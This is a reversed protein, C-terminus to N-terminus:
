GPILDYSANLIANVDDIAGFMTENYMGTSVDASLRQSVTLDTGSFTMGPNNLMDQVVGWDNANIEATGAVNGTRAYEQNDGTIYGLKAM